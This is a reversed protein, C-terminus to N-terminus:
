LAQMSVVTSDLSFRDGKTRELISWIPPQGNNQTGCTNFKTSKNESFTFKIRLQRYIQDSWLTRSVRSYKLVTHASGGGGGKLIALLTESM